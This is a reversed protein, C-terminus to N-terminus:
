IYFNVTGPRLAKYAIILEMQGPKINEVKISLTVEESKSNLVNSTGRSFNKYFCNYKLTAIGANLLQNM